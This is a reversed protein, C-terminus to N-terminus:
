ARVDAHGFLEDLLEGLGADGYESRLREAVRDRDGGEIAMVVAAFRADAKRDGTRAPMRMMPAGDPLPGDYARAAPASVREAPAPPPADIAPTAPAGDPGAAVEKLIREEAEGLIAVLQELRLKTLEGGELGEFVSCCRAAISARLEALRENRERAAALAEGHATQAIERAEDRAADTITEADREAQARVGEADSEARALVAAVQTSTESAVSRDGAANAPATSGVPTEDAGGQGPTRDQPGERDMSRGAAFRVVRRAM